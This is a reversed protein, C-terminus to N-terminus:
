SLGSFGSNEQDLLPNDIGAQKETSKEHLYRLDVHDSGITATGVFRVSSGELLDKRVKTESRVILVDADRVTARNIEAADLTRLEGLGGFVPDVFPIDADALVKM